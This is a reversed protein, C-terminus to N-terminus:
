YIDLVKDAIILIVVLLMFINVLMFLSRFHEPKKFFIYYFSAGLLVVNLLVITNKIVEISLHDFIIILFSSGSAAVLWSYIIRNIQDRNLLDTIVPFGANRYDQDYIIGLVWFHPVQWMFIFFGLLLPFPDALNGGASTWGMFVPIAGTLAGPVVAFVTKRKLWTYLGNYWSVNFIGLFFTIWHGGIILLLLGSSVLIFSIFIAMIPTIEKGPLPRGRTRSMKSDYEREQYQNLASAGSAILFIAFVPLFQSFSFGRLFVISAAFASFTVALSVKYRILQLFSTHSIIQM